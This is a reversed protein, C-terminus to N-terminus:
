DLFVVFVCIVVCGGSWEVVRLYESCGVEEGFVGYYWCLRLCYVCRNKLGGIFFWWVFLWELWWVDFIGVDFDEEEDYGCVSVYCWWFGGWVVEWCDEYVCEWVEEWGGCYNWLDYGVECGWVGECLM